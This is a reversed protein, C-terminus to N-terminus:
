PRLNGPAMSYPNERNANDPPEQENIRKKVLYYGILLLAGAIMWIGMKVLRKGLTEPSLSAEFQREPKGKENIRLRAGDYFPIVLVFDTENLKIVSGRMTGKQAGDTFLFLPVEFDFGYVVTNDNNVLEAHYPGRQLKRDPAYGDRTDVQM